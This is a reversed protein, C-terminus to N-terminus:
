KALGALKNRNERIKTKKKYYWYGMPVVILVYLIAGVWLIIPDDKFSIHINKFSFVGGILAMSFYFTLGVLAEETGKASKEEKEIEEIARLKEKTVQTNTALYGAKCNPCRHRPYEESDSREYGCKLCKRSFVQNITSM